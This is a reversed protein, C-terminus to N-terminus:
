PHADIYSIAYSVIITLGGLFLELKLARKIFLRPDLGLRKKRNTIHIDDLVGKKSSKSLRL